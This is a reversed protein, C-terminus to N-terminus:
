RFCHLLWKFIIGADFNYRGEWNIRFVASLIIIQFYLDSLTILINLNKCHNARFLFWLEFFQGVKVKKSM